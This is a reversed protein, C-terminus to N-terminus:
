VYQTPRRPRRARQADVLALQGAVWTRKVPPNRLASLRARVVARTREAGEAVVLTGAQVEQPLHHGTRETSRAGGAGEALRCPPPETVAHEREVDVDRGEVGVVGEGLLHLAIHVEHLGRAGRARAPLNLDSSCVDSSWDSIRM